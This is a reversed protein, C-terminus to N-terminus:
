EVKAFQEFIVDSDDWTHREGDPHALWIVPPDEDTGHIVDWVEGEPYTNVVKGDPDRIDLDRILRIKDGSRLGCKYESVPYRTVLKWENKADGKLEEPAVSKEM